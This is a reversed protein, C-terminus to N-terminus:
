ESGCAQCVFGVSCLSSCDQSEAEIRNEAASLISYMVVCFPFINIGRVQFNTIRTRCTPEHLIVNPPDKIKQRDAATMKRGTVASFLREVYQQKKPGVFDEYPFYHYNVRDHARCWVNWIVANHELTAAVSLDSDTVQM